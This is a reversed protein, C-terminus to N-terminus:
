LNTFNINRVPGIFLRKNKDLLLESETWTKKWNKILNGNM